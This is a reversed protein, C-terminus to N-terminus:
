NIKNQNKINKQNITDQMWVWTLLEATEGYAILFNSDIANWDENELFLHFFTLNGSSRGTAPHLLSFCNVEFKV